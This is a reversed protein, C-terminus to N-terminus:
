SVEQAALPKETTDQLGTLVAEVVAIAGEYNMRVPGILGVVAKQGAASVPALVLSCERLAELPNEDGITVSVGQDQACQGVLQAM